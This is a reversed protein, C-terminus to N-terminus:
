GYMHNNKNDKSKKPSDKSANTLYDIVADEFDDTHGNSDSEEIDAFKNIDNNYQKIISVFDDRLDGFLQQIKKVNREPPKATKMYYQYFDEWEAFHNELKNMIDELSPNPKDDPQSNIYFNFVMINDGQIQYTSSVSILSHIPTFPRIKSYHTNQNGSHPLNQITITTIHAIGAIIGKLCTLM